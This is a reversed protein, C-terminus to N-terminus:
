ELIWKVVDCQREVRGEVTLEDLRRVAPKKAAKEAAEPTNMRVTVTMPLAPKYPAFAGSRAKAVAERVKRATLQRGAAPAPGAARDRAEGHKVAAAVIGPFLDAAERCLAETGQALVPPVGWHGAFCAEIGLRM